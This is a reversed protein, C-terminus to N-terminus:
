FIRYKVLFIGYGSKVPAATGHKTTKFHYKQVYRVFGKPNCEPNTQVFDKGFHDDFDQM